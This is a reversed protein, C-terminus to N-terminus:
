DNVIGAVLSAAPVLGVWVAVDGFLWFLPVVLAAVWVSACWDCTVLEGIPSPEVAVWADVLDSYAVSAGGLTTPDGSTGTVWEGTFMTDDAPWRSLVRERLRLIPPFTDTTVLRTLRAVTLVCVAAALWSM